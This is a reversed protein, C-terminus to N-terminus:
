IAGTPRAESIVLGGVAPEVIPSRQMKTRSSAFRWLARIAIALLPTWLLLAWRGSTAIGFLPLLFASVLVGLQRYSIPLIRAMGAHLIGYAGCAVLEAWEIDRWGSDQSCSSPPWARLLGVHVAYAKLVVWRRGEVFLAAAQLNYVSNVLVAGAVFPYIRLSPMWRVGLVRPVVFPATLAFLCLLPGLCLVQLTLARKYPALLTARDVRMRSLAAIM